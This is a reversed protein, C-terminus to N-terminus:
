SSYYKTSVYTAKPRGRGKQNGDIICIKNQQKLTLIFEDLEKAHVGNLSNLLDSRALGDPGTGNIKRIIKEILTENEEHRQIQVLNEMMEMTHKDIEKDFKQAEEYHKETAILLKEGILKGEAIANLLTYKTIHEWRTQQYINYDSADKTLDEDVKRAMNTINERSTTNIDVPLFPAYPREIRIRQYLQNYEIMKPVLRKETFELLDLEYQSYENQFPSKWDKMSFDSPKIYIIRMRRLLGQRSMKKNLYYQPEQMSAFMTFFLGKPIFRSPAEGHRQSLSEKYYEGYYLRSLLTDMGSAYHHKSTIKQLIDGFEGSCLQFNEIGNELGEMICDCIGQPSGDEIISKWVKAKADEKNLRGNQIYFETLAKFYLIQNYDTITSRRGRGPICSLVFWVNPRGCKMDPMIFFRGLTSSIVHYALAKHFVLPSDIYKTTIGILEKILNEAMM